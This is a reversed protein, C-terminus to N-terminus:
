SGHASSAIKGRKHGPTRSHVGIREIPSVGGGGATLGQVIVSHGPASRRQRQRM